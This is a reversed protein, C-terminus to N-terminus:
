SNPSVAEALAEQELKEQEAVVDAEQDETDEVIVATTKCALNTKLREKYEAYIESHARLWELVKEEGQVKELNERDGVKTIAVTYWGGDKKIIGYKVFAQVYEEEVQYGEGFIIKMDCTRFPPAVKNKITKVRSIMGIQGNQKDEIREGTRTTMRIATFFKLANGGPTTEPNGYVTNHSLVGNSFYNHNKEVLMDLVPIVADSKKVRCSSWSWESFPMRTLVLFFGLDALEKLEMYISETTLAFRVLIKHNGAGIFSLKKNIFVNYGDTDEKRIIKSVRSFVVRNDKREYFNSLDFSEVDIKKDSVDIEENIPMTQWDIGFAQKFFDGMSSKQPEM